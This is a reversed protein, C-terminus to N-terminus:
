APRRHRRDHRKLFAPTYRKWFDRFWLEATDPGLEEWVCDVAANMAREIQRASMPKSEHTSPRHHIMRGFYRDCFAGYDETHLIFAHWMEDLPKWASWMTFDEAGDRAGMWLLKLMERFLLDGEKRDLDYDRLFGRVVSPNKYRLVDALPARRTRSRRQKSRKTM